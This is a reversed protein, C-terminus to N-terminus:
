KWDLVLEIVFAATWGFDRAGLGEGTRADYYERLSDEAACWDLIRERIANAIAGHSYRKLGKLAFYATNLWCPGRWMQRSYNPNSYSVTPMGPFFHARDAALMAMQEARSRSAVGAFLPVFSAPTLVESFRSEKFDFDCYARQRPNWLREEIRAALRARKEAWEPAHRGVKGALFELAEYFMAMYANLDVPWMEVIAKDWRVSDDWGSEFKAQQRWDGGRGSTDYHFLGDHSRASVWHRELSVFADYARSLPGAGARRAEVIQIAWPWVPPKGFAGVIRGDSFLVDVFGGDLQQSDFFIDAQEWALRPDWRCCAVAHFAADWNWVGEYTGFAPIIGRHPAWPKGEGLVTNAELTEVARRVLAKNRTTLPPLSSLFEDARPSM